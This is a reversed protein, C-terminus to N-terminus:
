RCIGEQILLQAVLDFAVANELRHDNQGRVKAWAFTDFATDVCKANDLNFVDKVLVDTLWTDVLSEVVIRLEDLGYWVVAIKGM